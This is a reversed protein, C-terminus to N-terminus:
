VIERWELSAGRIVPSTLRSENIVFQLFLANNGSTQNINISTTEILQPGRVKKLRIKEGSGDSRDMLAIESIFSDYDEEIAGDIYFDLDISHPNIRTIAIGNHDVQPIHELPIVVTDTSDLYDISSVDIKSFGMTNIGDEVEFDIIFTNNWEKPSLHFVLPGSPSYFPNDIDPFISHSVSQLDQYEIGSINIGFIPFPIVEVFNFKKSISPPLRLELTHIGPSTSEVWFTSNNGDLINYAPDDPQRLNGDIYIEVAPNVLGDYVPIKSTRKSDEWNMTVIGGAKHQRGGSIEGFATAYSVGGYEGSPINLLTPYSKYMSDHSELARYASTVGLSLRSMTESLEAGRLLARLVSEEISKLMSNLQKSDINSRYVLEEIMPYALLKDKDAM